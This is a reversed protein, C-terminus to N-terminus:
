IAGKKELYDNLSTKKLDGRKRKKNFEAKANKIYAEKNPNFDEHVYKGNRFRSPKSLKFLGHNLKDEYEILFEETPIFEWHYEYGQKTRYLPEEHYVFSDKYKPFAEKLASVRSEQLNITDQSFPKFYNLVCTLLYTEPTNKMTGFISVGTKYNMRNRMHKVKLGSMVMMNM